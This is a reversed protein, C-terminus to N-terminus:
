KKIEKIQKKNLDSLDKAQKDLLITNLKVIVSKDTLKSQDYAEIRVADTKCNEKLIAQSKVTTGLLVIISLIIFKKM